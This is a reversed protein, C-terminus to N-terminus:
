AILEVISVFNLSAPQPWDPAAKTRRHSIRGAQRLGAGRRISPERLATKVATGSGSAPKERNMGTIEPKVASLSFSAPERRIKRNAREDADRAGPRMQKKV